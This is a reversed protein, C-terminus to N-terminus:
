KRVQLEYVVANGGEPTARVGRITWITEDAMTLQDGEQPILTTASAAMTALADGARVLDPGFKRGLTILDSTDMFLPVSATEVVDAGTTSTTVDYAGPTVKTLTATVNGYANLVSVATARLGDYVSM